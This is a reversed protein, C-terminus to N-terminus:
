LAKGWASWASPEWYRYTGRAWLGGYAGIIVQAAHGNACSVVILTSRDAGPPLNAPLSGEPYITYVGAANINNLDDADNLGRRESVTLALLASLPYLISNGNSDIGRLYVATGQQMANERIDAMVKGNKPCLRYFRYSIASYAQVM